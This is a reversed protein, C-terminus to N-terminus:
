GMRYDAPTIILLTTGLTTTIHNHTSGPTACHFDGPGFSEGNVIFDGELIFCQEAGPHTHESFETGPALKYLKTVTRAVPDKYLLKAFVGNGCDKWNIEHYRTAVFPNAPPAALPPQMTPTAVVQALLRARVAPAPTKEPASFCLAEVVRECARLEAASAADGATLREAFARAEHQSLTGLAYLAAQEEIFESPRQDAM